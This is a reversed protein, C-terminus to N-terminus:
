TKKRMNNLQKEIMETYIPLFIRGKKVDVLLREVDPILETLNLAEALGLAMWIRAESIYDTPYRGEKRIRFSLYDRLAGNLAQRENLLIPRLTLTLDSLVDEGSTRPHMLNIQYEISNLVEEKTMFM